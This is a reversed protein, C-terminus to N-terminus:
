NQNFIQHFNSLSQTKKMYYQLNLKIENVNTSLNAEYVACFDFDVDDDNSVTGNNLLETGVDTEDLECDGTEFNPMVALTAGILFGIVDVVWKIVDVCVVLLTEGDIGAVGDDVAESFFVGDM